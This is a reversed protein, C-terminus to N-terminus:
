LNDYPNDSGESYKIGFLALVVAGLAIGIRVAGDYMGIDGVEVSGATGVAFIVAALLIIVSVTGAMDRLRDYNRHEEMIIKERGRSQM